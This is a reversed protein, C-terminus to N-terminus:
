EPGKSSERHAKELTEALTYEGRAHREATRKDHEVQWSKAIQLLPEVANIGRQEEFWYYGGRDHTATLVIERITSTSVPGLYIAEVAPIRMQMKRIEEPLRELRVDGDRLQAPSLLESEDLKQRDIGIVAGAPLGSTLVNDWKWQHEEIYDDASTDFDFLSVGGLHRSWSVASQGFRTAFQGSNPTIQGARIISKLSDLSTRHWLRGRGRLRKWLPEATKPYIHSADM